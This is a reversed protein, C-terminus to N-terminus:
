RQKRFPERAASHDVHMAHRRLEDCCSLLLGGQQAPLLLLPVQLGHLLLLLLIICLLLILLHLLLLLGQLLLLLLITCLLLILVLRLLLLFTIHQLLAALHLQPLLLQLQNCRTPLRHLRAKALHPRQATVCAAATISFAANRDNV